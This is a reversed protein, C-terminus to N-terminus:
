EKKLQRKKLPLEKNDIDFDSGETEKEAEEQHNMMMAYQFQVNSRKFRAEDIKLLMDEYNLQAELYPISDQYFNLMDAKRQALQEVSMNEQDQQNEM